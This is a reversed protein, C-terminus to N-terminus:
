LLGGGGMGYGAVKRGRGTTPGDPILGRTHFRRTSDPKVNDLVDVSVSRKLEARQMKEERKEKRSTGALGEGRGKVEKTQSITEEEDSTGREKPSGKGEAARPGRFEQGAGCSTDRVRQSREQVEEGEGGWWSCRDGSNVVPPCM